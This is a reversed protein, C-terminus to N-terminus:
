KRARKRLAIISLLSAGFLGATAPEPVVTGDTQIVLDTFQHLGSGASGAQDWNVSVLNTFGSFTFTQFASVGVPTAVTFSQMVTGGGALNGTFTVTPAPDFAFSRALDISTLSFASNDVAELSVSGGMLPSFGPEGAYFFAAGTGFTNFGPTPGTSNLAFGQSVYPGLLYLTPVDGPNADNLELVVTAASLSGAALLM